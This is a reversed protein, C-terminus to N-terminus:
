IKAKKLFILSSMGFIPNIWFQDYGQEVFGYISLTLILPIIYDFNYKLAKSRIILHYGIVLLFAVVGYHVLLEIYANDLFAYTNVQSLNFNYNIEQGWIKFGYEKFFVFSLHLRNTLLTNANFLLSGNVDVENNLLFLSITPVGVIIMNELFTLVREKSIIKRSILVILFLGLCIISSSSGSEILFFLMPIQILTSLLLELFSNKKNVTLHTILIIEFVFVTAGLINPQGFGFSHRGVENNNLDMLHGSLFLGFTILIVFIKSLFLDFLAQNVTLSRASLIYIVLFLMKTSKSNFSITLSLIILVVMFLFDNISSKEYVFSLAFFLMLLGLVVYNSNNLISNEFKFSDTSIVSFSLLIVNILNLFFHKSIL